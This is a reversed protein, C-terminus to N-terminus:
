MRCKSRLSVTLMTYSTRNNSYFSFTIFVLIKCQFLNSKRPLSRDCQVLPNGEFGENCVCVARHNIAQCVANHGCAGPCPDTCRENQCALNSGCEADITCEPRCNPPRGIYNALCTCAEQTGVVRCQSNPGCPSPLCPNVPQPSNERFEKKICQIFPDGTYGPPCSCIPNHNVVQCRAETGCTGPCPDTCKQNICARDQSCESSVVCEPRCSPPTGIYGSQCSCVPHGNVERCNSNPGCPSPYCGETKPRETVREAVSCERSPDGTYGEICLCIPSHNQVRCEANLGCVGPCPDKCKNNVCARFKDCDSNQVCEPRCGTYPDGFYDPLCLCSGAGNREKCVANAGCPSPNCPNVQEPERATPFCILSDPLFLLCFFNHGSFNRVILSNQAYQFRIM